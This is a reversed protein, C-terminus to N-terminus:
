RAGARRRLAEQRLREYEAQARRSDDVRGLADHAAALYRHVIFPAGLRAAATLHDVAEATEETDLLALGLELHLSASPEIALAKRLLAVAEAPQGDAAAVTADRRLGELEFARARLTATEAQQQQFIELERRGEDAQGLRMLATGLAYRAERHEPDLELARRAAAAARDYGNARLHARALLAAAQAHWPDLLLVLSLEALAWEHRGQRLYIDGLDYHADADNPHADVRASYAAAAEDFAQQAALLRGMTEYISNRGLLPHFALSAEFARLAEAYLGQRQYVRALAYHARGSAPLAAVAEELASAAEALAGSEVLVDGLALRAREDQPALGIAQRLAAIAPEYQGDASYVIGLLRHPEARDPTAAIASTLAEVAAAVRGDRFAAAAGAIAERQPGGGTVLPDGRSAEEFLTVGARYDGEHLRAFGEAYRAPPFFPEVGATEPVLTVRIFPSPVATRHAVATRVREADLFRQLAQQAAEPQGAKALQRALVYHVIPEDPELAAARRFAEVAAQADDAVQSYAVGLLRQIDTRNPDITRAAELERLADDVRLRDLYIGGIALHMRAALAPDAAGIDARMAGEYTRILADWGDLAQQMADLAAVITAGEDGYRGDLALSFRGLADVFRARPEVGPQAFASAAFLLAILSAFIRRRPMHPNYLHASPALGTPRSGWRGQCLDM